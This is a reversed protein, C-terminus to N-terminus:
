HEASSNSAPVNPCKGPMKLAIGSARFVESLLGRILRWHTGDPTGDDFDENRERLFKEGAVLGQFTIKMYDVGLSCAVTNFTLCKRGENRENKRGM